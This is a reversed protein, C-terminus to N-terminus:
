WATIQEKMKNHYEELKYLKVLRETNKKLRCLALQKNIPLGVIDRKWPLNAIYRGNKAQRLGKMFENHFDGTTEEKETIGLLDLKTMREFQQENTLM